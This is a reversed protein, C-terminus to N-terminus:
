SMGKHLHAGDGRGLLAAIAASIDEPSVSARGYFLIEAGLAKTNASKIAPANPRMNM